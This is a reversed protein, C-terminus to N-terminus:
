KKFVLYSVVAAAFGIAAYPHEAAYTIVTKLLSFIWSIISGIASPLAKLAWKALKGFLRALSTLSKKVWDRAKHPNSGSKGSGGVSSNPLLALVLTSITMGIATLVSVLTLGQERWLIKLREKLTRDKDAIKDVTQRMRAFQSSVKEKIQSISELRIDYEEKLRELRENIRQKQQETEAEGLKRKNRKIADELETLKSTGNVIEGQLRQLAKDLALLERTPM